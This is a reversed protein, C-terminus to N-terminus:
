PLRAPVLASLKGAALVKSVYDNVTVIGPNNPTVKVGLPHDLDAFKTDLPVNRAPPFFVTMFLRQPTDLPVPTPDDPHQGSATWEFYFRAWAFYEAPTMRALDDVSLEVGAAEGLWRAIKPIIQIPGTAKSTPNQVEISFEGASEHRILDALWYPHTGIARAMEVIEIAIVPSIQYAAVIAAAEASMAAGGAGAGGAVAVLAVGAGALGLLALAAIGAVGAVGALLATRNRQAM